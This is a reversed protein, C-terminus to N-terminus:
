LWPLFSASSRALRAFIRVTRICALAHRDVLGARDADNERVAGAEAAVRVQPDPADGAHPQASWTVTRRRSPRSRRAPAPPEVGAGTSGPRTRGRRRLGSWSARPRVSITSM